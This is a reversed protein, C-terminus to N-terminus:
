NSNKVCHFFQANRRGKGHLVVYNLKSGLTCIICPSWGCVAVICSGRDKDALFILGLFVLLDSAQLYESHYLRSPFIVIEAIKIYDSIFPDYYNISNKNYKWVLM